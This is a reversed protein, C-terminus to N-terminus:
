DVRVVSTCEYTVKCRPPDMTFPTQTFVINEGSFSDAAPNTQQTAKFDFPYWCPNDFEVDATAVATSVTPNSSKPYESFEAEVSYPLIQLILDGDDSYATFQRDDESYTLPDGDVLENNFKAVFVM